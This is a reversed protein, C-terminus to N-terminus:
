TTASRDIASRWIVELTKLAQEVHLPCAGVAVLMSRRPNPVTVTRTAASGCEACRPCQAGFDDVPLESRHSPGGSPPTRTM